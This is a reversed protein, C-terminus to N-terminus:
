SIQVVTRGRVRGELIANAAEFTDDLGITTTLADLADLDLEDALMAWARERLERPADVSNAGHLTIGRLIFPLVTVPLDIGQVMGNTVVTGGYRTQALVNALTHSGISDVAGGWRESQLPRNVPESFQARDVIENAGLATLFVSQEVARGTSAVIRYGRRALLNIAVSGVGGAAGTVLVDGNHPVVGHDALALVAIAATFGATGIAAARSLSISDPIHVLSQSSVRAREAYGGDTIEGAGAGNLTVRDGVAFRNSTSEAVVGVVDIGLTVPWRRVIGLGTLAMGDKFNVSSHSVDILVDGSGPDPEDKEILSAPQNETHAVIARM